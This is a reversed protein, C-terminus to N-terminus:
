RDSDRRKRKSQRETYAVFGGVRRVFGIKVTEGDQRQKKKRQNGKQRRDESSDMKMETKNQSGGGVEGFGKMLGARKLDTAAKEGATNMKEVCRAPCGCLRAGRAVSQFKHRM